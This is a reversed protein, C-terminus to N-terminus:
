SRGGVVVSLVKPTLKCMLTYVIYLCLITTVAGLIYAFFVAVESTGLALCYVRWIFVALYYHYLFVFFTMVVMKGSVPKKMRESTVKVISLVLPFGILVSLNLVYEIETSIYVVLAVLYLLLYLVSRKGKRMVEIIDIERISFLAGLSFFFYARTNLVPSSPSPFDIIWMLGLVLPLLWSVKKMCIFFVPSLLVALMLDRLFWTPLNAPFGHERAWFGSLIYTANIDDGQKVCIILEGIVIVLNAIVYPILLSKIRSSWKNVFWKTRNEEPQKLFFLYGSISFFLPVCIHNLFLESFVYMFQTVLKYDAGGWSQGLLLTSEGPSFQAHIFVVGICLVCKLLNITDSSSGKLTM